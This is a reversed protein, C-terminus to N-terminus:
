YFNRPYTIFSRQSLFRFFFFFSFPFYREHQNTQQDWTNPQWTQKNVLPTLPTADLPSLRTEQQARERDISSWRDIRNTVQSPPARESPHGRDPETIIAWNSSSLDRAKDVTQTQWVQYKETFRTSKKKKGRRKKM